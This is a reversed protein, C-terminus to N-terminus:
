EHTNEKIHAGTNLFLQQRAISIAGISTLNSLQSRQIMAHCNCGMSQISTQLAEFFVDYEFFPGYLVVVSSDLVQILNIIGTAVYTIAENIIRMIIPDNSEYAYAIDEMDINYMSHNTTEDYLSTEKFIVEIQERISRYSAVTELCGTKGCSCVRGHQQVITHGFELANYSAGHYIQDNMILSAGIGPGYKIFVLSDHIDRKEKEALALSRVNNDVVVPKNFVLELRKKLAIPTDWLEYAQVSIGQSSDVLGIISVGIGLINEFTLQHKDLLAYVHKKIYQFVFEIDPKYYRYMVTDLIVKNMTALSISIGNQEIAIGIIYRYTDNLAITTKNRGRTSTEIVEGTEILVGEQIMDGVLISVAAPTLGITESIDQRSVHNSVIAQLIRSRNLSKISVTKSGLGTM